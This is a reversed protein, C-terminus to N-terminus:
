KLNIMICTFAPKTLLHKTDCVKGRDIGLKHTIEETDSTGKQLDDFLTSLHHDIFETDCTESSHRLFFVYLGNSICFHVQVEVLNLCMIHFSTPSQLLGEWLRETTKPWSCCRCFVTWTVHQERTEWATTGSQQSSTTFLQWWSAMLWLLLDNTAWMTVTM